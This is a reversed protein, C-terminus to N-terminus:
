AACTWPVRRVACAVTVSMLLASCLAVSAMVCLRLAYGGISVTAGNLITFLEHPALDVCLRDLDAVVHCRDLVEEVTGVNEPPVPIRM